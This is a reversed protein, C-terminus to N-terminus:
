GVSSGTFVQDIKSFFKPEVSFFEGSYTITKRAFDILFTTPRSKLDIANRSLYEGVTQDVTKKFNESLENALFNLDKIGFGAFVCSVSWHLRAKPETVLELSATVNEQALILIISAPVEQSFLVALSELCKKQEETMKSLQEEVVRLAAFANLGQGLLPVSDEQRAEPSVEPNKATTLIQNDDSM